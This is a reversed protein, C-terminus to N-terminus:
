SAALYSVEFVSLGPAVVSSLLLPAEPLVAVPSLLELVSFGEPLPCKILCWVASAVLLGVVVGVVLVAVGFVLVPELEVVVVAEPALGVLVEVGYVAVAPAVM